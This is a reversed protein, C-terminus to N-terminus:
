SKIKKNLVHYVSNLFKDIRRKMRAKRLKYPLKKLGIKYQKREESSLQNLIYNKVKDQNKKYDKMSIKKTLMEEHFRYKLLSKPIFYLRVKHLLCYRLWLEFDVQYGIKEDFKGYEDIATRHILSSNANGIYHDLLLVNFEFPNFHEFNPEIFERIIKGESDIIHYNSVIIWNKKDEFKKGENVLEEIANPYLVDDASLWKFWEGSMAKIGANLASATGGNKKSIIKIKNQYKKLINLSNDTSGDDVAIIEVNKYTQNLASQISEEVYKENNYVPIVISVKHLMRELLYTNQPLKSM